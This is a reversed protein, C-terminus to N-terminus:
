KFISSFLSPANMDASSAESWLTMWSVAALDWEDVQWDCFCSLARPWEKMYDQGDSGTCVEGCDWRMDQLVWEYESAAASKRKWSLSGFVPLTPESIFYSAFIDKDFDFQLCPEMKWGNLWNHLSETEHQKHCGGTFFCFFSCFVEFLFFLIFDAKWYTTAHLYDIEPYM